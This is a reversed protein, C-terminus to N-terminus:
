TQIDTCYFQYMGIFARRNEEEFAELSTLNCINQDDLYTELYQNLITQNQITFKELKLKLKDLHDKIMPITFRHEQVHFILDRCESLSYFDRLYLIDHIALDEIHNKIYERCERIGDASAKFGKEKILERAKVIDERAIESYLAIKMKGGPKLVSKLAQWGKFPDEMHHLVGGCEIYDFTKNLHAVDLIDGQKFTVKADLNYERLKRQAYAISSRSLDIATIQANPSVNLVHIIQKGTGCGAILINLNQDVLIRKTFMKPTVVSQIWRPYPNEEYQEQVQRSVLDKINRIQKIKKKLNQETEYDEVLLKKVPQFIDKKPLSKILDKTETYNDYCAKVLVQAPSPSELLQNELIKLDEIENKTVNFVYENCFCQIVLSRLYKLHDQTISNKSVYIELFYRRLFTLFTELRPDSVHSKEFVNLVVDHSIIDKLSTKDLAQKFDIYDNKDLFTKLAKFEPLTDIFWMLIKPVTEMAVDSRDCYQDLVELAKPSASYFKGSQLIRSLSAFAEQSNPYVNITEKLINLAKNLDSNAILANVYRLLLDLSPSKISSIKEEILEQAKKTDKAILYGDVLAYWTNDNDRISLSKNLYDIAETTQNQSLYWLGLHYLIDPDTPVVAYAQALYKKSNETDKQNFYCVGINKLLKHDLPKTKLPIKFCKIAQDHKQWQMYLSGLFQNLDAHKKDTKLLDLYIKEADKLLGQKQYSLAQQVHAILDQETLHTKSAM